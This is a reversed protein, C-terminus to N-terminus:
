VDTQTHDASPVDHDIQSIQKHLTHCVTGEDHHDLEVCLAAANM